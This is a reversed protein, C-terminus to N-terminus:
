AGKCKNFLARIEARKKVRSPLLRLKGKRFMKWGLDMDKFLQKTKLKLSMLM